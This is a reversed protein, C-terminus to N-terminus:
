CDIGLRLTGDKKKVFLMAVDWLLVTPTIFNKDLLEHLQVKLEELRRTSDQYMTKSIPEAGPIYNIEFDIEREPLICLLDDRFVNTFKRVIPVDPIQLEKGKTEM